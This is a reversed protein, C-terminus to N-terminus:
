IYTKSVVTVMPTDNTSNLNYDTVDIENFNGKIKLQSKITYLNNLTAYIQFDPSQSNVFFTTNSAFNELREFIGSYLNFTIIYKKM